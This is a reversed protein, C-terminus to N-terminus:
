YHIRLTGDPKLELRYPCNELAQTAKEDADECADLTEECADAIAERVDKGFVATRIKEIDERADDM